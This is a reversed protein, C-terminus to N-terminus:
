KQLRYEIIKTVMSFSLPDYLKDCTGLERITIQLKYWARNAYSKNYLVVTCIM